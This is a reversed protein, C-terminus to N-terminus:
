LHPDNSITGGKTAGATLTRLAEDGLTERTLRVTLRSIAIAHHFLSSSRTLDGYDGGSRGVATVSDALSFKSDAYCENRRGV